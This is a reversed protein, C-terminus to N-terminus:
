PKPYLTTSGSTKFGVARSPIVQVSFVGELMKFSRLRDDLLLTGLQDFSGLLRARISIQPGSSSRQNCVTSPCFGANGMILFIGYNGYNLTRLTM